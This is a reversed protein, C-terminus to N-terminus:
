TVLTFRVLVFHKGMPSSRLRRLTSYSRPTSSHSACYDVEIADSYKVVAKNAWQQRNAYLSIRGTHSMSCGRGRGLCLLCLVALWSVCCFVVVLYSRGLLPAVSVVVTSVPCAVTPFSTTVIHNTSHSLQRVLLVINVFHCKGQFM